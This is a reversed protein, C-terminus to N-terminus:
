FIFNKLWTCLRVFWNPQKVIISALARQGETLQDQNEKSALFNDNSLQHSINNYHLVSQKIQYKLQGIPSVRKQSNMSQHNQTNGSLTLFMIPTKDDDILKFIEIMITELIPTGDLLTSVGNIKKSMRLNNETLVIPINIEDGCIDQMEFHWTKKKENVYMNWAEIDSVSDDYIGDENSYYEEPPLGNAHTLVIISKRWMNTGFKTTLEILKEKQKLDLIDSVKFVWLIIDIQNEEIYRSIQEMNEVDQETGRSDFFGPSDTYHFDVDNIKDEFTRVFNTDSKLGGKLKLTADNLSFLRKVLATKGVQTPGLALLKIVKKGLMFKNVYFKVLKFKSKFINIAHVEDNNNEKSLSLLERNEKIKEILQGMKKTTVHQNMKAILANTLGDYLRLVNINMKSDLIKYEDCSTFIDNLEEKMQPYLDCTVIIIEELSDKCLTELVSFETIDKGFLSQCTM